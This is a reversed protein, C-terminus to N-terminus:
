TLEFIVDIKYDQPESLYQDVRSFPVANKVANMAAEDLSATGSSKVISLHSVTGNAYLKFKLSVRGEREMQMAMDPYRQQKQIAAHLMAVLESTKEGRQTANAQQNKQTKGTQDKTTELKPQVKNLAIANKNKTVVEKKASKASESASQFPSPGDYVYSNIAQPDGLIFSPSAFDFYFVIGAFVMGHLFLSTFLSAFKTNKIGDM